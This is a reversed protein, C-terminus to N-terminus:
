GFIVVQRIAEGAALREFGANIDELRIRHTMLKEVPMAGSMMLAAFRPVDRKPV